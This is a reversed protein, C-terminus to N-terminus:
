ELSLLKKKKPLFLPYWKNYFEHDTIIDESHQVFGPPPEKKVRVENLRNFLKDGLMHELTKRRKGTGAIAWIYSDTDTYVFHFKNKDLCKYM